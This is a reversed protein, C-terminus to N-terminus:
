TEERRCQFSTKYGSDDITHTTQTIFYRGSFRRGLGDIMVVSGARLDPLGVTSGSGKIMEKAINELTETALQKAEAESELPKEAIIERRKAFSKNIKGQGGQNGVGKIDISSRKATYTIPKKEKMSWGRVTVENVQQATSLTPRFETLSRGYTLQYTVKKVNDSPGFYLASKGKEKEKVFLDYGNHQARKTLFTVDYENNQFLYQQIPEKGMAQANTEIDLGLRGAITKAIQSDKKKEYVFSQQETRLKHILNLGSISLTPGGGSPFSPQLNTIEGRIMLRLRDKGYYGMWLEVEKGPDFLDDDSYQFVRKQPDWNSITIQFSDIEDISDTYSVSLIDQVVEQGQPRGRIKLQFHPVYFDQGEYIPHASM